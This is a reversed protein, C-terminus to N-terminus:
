LYGDFVLRDGIDVMLKRFVLIEIVVVILELEMLIFCEPSNLVIIKQFRQFVTYLFQRFFRLFNKSEASHLAAGNSFNGVLQINGLFGNFIM